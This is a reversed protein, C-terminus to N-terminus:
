EIRERGRLMAVKRQHQAALMKCVRPKVNSTIHRTYYGYVNAHRMYTLSSVFRMADYWTVWAKRGIRTARRRARCLISKRICIRDRHIVFGVANMARGARYQKGDKEHMKADEFRFVQRSRGFTLGRENYLWKTLNKVMHHLKRKNTCMLWLNDMYRAYHDPKLQQLIYEDMGMLYFNALWPSLINGLPLGEFPEIAYAVTDVYLKDRISKRLLQLLTDKSVSAYFKSIDLEAVYFRKNGYEHVWKHLTKALHHQGHRTVVPIGGIMRVKNTSLSGYAHPYLRPTMITKLENVIMHHVIQECEWKPRYITRNKRYSGENIQSEQYTDPRWTGDALAALTSDITGEIDGLARRVGRRNHKGEAANIIADRVSDREVM